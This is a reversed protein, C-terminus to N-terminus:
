GAKPTQLPKGSKLQEQIRRLDNCSKCDPDACYVSGQAPHDKRPTPLAAM